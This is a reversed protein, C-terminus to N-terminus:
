PWSAVPEVSAGFMASGARRSAGAANRFITRSPMGSVPM